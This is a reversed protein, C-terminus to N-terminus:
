YRQQESANKAGLVLVRFKDRTQSALMSREMGAWRNM